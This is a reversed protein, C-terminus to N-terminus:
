VPHLAFKQKADSAFKGWVAVTNVACVNVALLTTKRENGEM